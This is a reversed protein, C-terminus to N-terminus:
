EAGLQGLGELQLDGDDGGVHVRDGLGFHGDLHCEVAAHAQDVVVHAVFFLDFFDRADFVVDVAEDLFGDFGEGVLFDAGDDFGDALAAEAEAGEGDDIGIVFEEAKEGAADDFWAVGVAEDGLGHGWAILDVCEVFAFDGLVGDFGGVLKEGCVEADM